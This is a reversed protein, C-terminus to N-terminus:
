ESAFFRTWSVLMPDPASYQVVIGEPLIMLATPMQNSFIDNGVEVAFPGFNGYDATMLWYYSIFQQGRTVFVQTVSFQGTEDIATQGSEIWDAQAFLEPTSTMLSVVDWPTTMVPDIIDQAELRGSRSLSDIQAGRVTYLSKGVWDYLQIEFDGQNWDTVVASVPILGSNGILPFQDTVLYPQDGSRIAVSLEFEDSTESKMWVVVLDCPDAEVMHGVPLHKSLYDTDVTGTDLDPCSQPYLEDLIITEQVEEIASVSPVLVLMALILFLFLRKM